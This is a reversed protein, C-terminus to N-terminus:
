EVRAGTDQIVKIWKPTDAKLFEAFQEATNPVAEGGLTGTIRQQYDPAAIVKNVEGNLRNVAAGPTGAPAFLGFWIYTEFGPVGSEMVTPIEPAAAARKAGSVAIGRLRGNKVHPHSTSITDFTLSVQGAILDAISPAAGKYPVHLLKIRTAAMFMEMVLHGGSGSGPSSFALEGPRRKALAVIDKVAKVPLSPHTVLYFHLSGANAVPAFDKMPDYGVKRYLYGSVHSSTAHMLLTYGDAAAKAVQATAITGTAGPRNDVIFQQGLSDGLRQALVRALVDTPGGPPFPVVIRVPKAPFPAQAWAPVACAAVLVAVLTITRM